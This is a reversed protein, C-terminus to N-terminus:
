GVTRGRQLVAARYLSEARYSSRVMPGAEVGAFGTTRAVEALADFEEPPVFREVCLHGSTPRLYQGLTLLDVSVARLDRFADVLEAEREGLGLM